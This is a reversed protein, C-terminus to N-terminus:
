SRLAQRWADELMGLAPHGPALRALTALARVFGSRDRIALQGCADFFAARASGPDQRAALTGDHALAAALRDGRVAMGIVVGPPVDHRLIRYGAAALPANPGERRVYIAAVDDLYTMALEPARALAAGFAEGEVARSVAWELELESMLRRLEGLDTESARVRAILAPDHVWGTRGDLLVQHRPLLRLGLYGGYPAFNWMRGALEHQEIWRVAAEPHNKPDFGVGLGAETRMLLWPVVLLAGLAGVVRMEPRSQALSGLRRAVLPAVMVAAVPILRVAGAALALAAGVMGVELLTPLRRNTDADRGLVLAVGLVALLLGAPPETQTLFTFDPSAWETVVGFDRAARLPGLLLQPGARNLCAAVTAVAAVAITRDAERGDATPLLGGARGRAVWCAGRYSAYLWAVLLGVVV